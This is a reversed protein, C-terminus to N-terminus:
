RMVNSVMSMLHLMKKGTKVGDLDRLPTMPLTINGCGSDSSIRYVTLIIRPIILSILRFRMSVHLPLRCIVRPIENICIDALQGKNDVIRTHTRQSQHPKPVTKCASMPHNGNCAICKHDYRRKKAVGVPGPITDYVGTYKQHIEPQTSITRVHSGESLHVKPCTSRRVHSCDGLYVSM